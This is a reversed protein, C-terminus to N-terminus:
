GSLQPGIQALETLKDVSDITIETRNVRIAGTSKIVNLSRSIAEPVTAIRSAMEEISCTHRDIPHRGCDSLDMLLKSTRAVVSRFSLDEYQALMERNRKALVRLLSLGVQPIHELLSQFAEHGIQWTLCDEVAVATAPNPGGDLVTIENFMIVPEIIAIINAQGQPGLKCLHVHGKILVFMGACPEGETFIRAGAKFRRITGATVITHLDKLSLKKFHRVTRISAILQELNEM